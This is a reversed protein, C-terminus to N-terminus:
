NLVLKSSNCANNKLEAHCDPCLPILNELTDGFTLLYTDQRGCKACKLLNTM